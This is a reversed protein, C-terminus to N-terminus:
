PATVAGNSWPVRGRTTMGTLGSLEEEDLTIPWFIEDLSQEYARQEEVCPSEALREVSARSVALCGNEAKGELLGETAWRRVAFVSRLGLLGAAERATLWTPDVRDLPMMQDIM